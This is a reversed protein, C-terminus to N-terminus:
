ETIFSEISRELDSSDQDLAKVAENLMTVVELQQQATADVEESAASAEEAVASINEISNLTDAKSRNIEGIGDAINELKEALDDVHININNFLQVVNNLRTETTKSVKEAQRVTEVTTQTKTIIRKIIQEIEQAATVSKNSLNRIEDAVVSFGRGSEGARAAEIAANLSLLNTQGAIDNIVAIIDTIVKSERELEEINKITNDTVRVNEITVDSLKDMENIGDKVVNKTTEAIKEIALSNEHVMNIQNALEDTLRLCQESDEAQQINGQQIESIAVSINKSSALLLESNDAVNKTSALVNQGVKSAKKILEKMNSIMNNISDSLVGFEDKRILEVNVSLDGNSTKILTKIMENIAKGFGYAVYIGIGVAVIVAIVVLIFTLNKITSSQELLYSSPIMTSVVAGTDGVKAYIFEHSEGQYDVTLHGQNENSNFIKQYEDLTTFIPEIVDGNLSIERGDESILAIYSNEPLGLTKMPETIVNMSVDMYIYGIPRATVNLLQKSLTIAYKDSPIELYEDFFAHYGTWMNITTSTDIRKAEDTESFSKHPDLAEDFEGYSTLPKGANSIILINEIFRDSTALLSVNSRAAKLANAQELADKSYKGAYYDKIQPDVVISVAKDEINSFILDYYESTKEVSSITADTFTKIIAKSSSRYASVGLIIIFLVPVLFLLVLKIRISGIIKSLFLKFLEQFKQM